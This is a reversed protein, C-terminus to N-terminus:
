RKEWIRLLRENVVQYLKATATLDAINYEIIDELRGEHYAAQVQSGDGFVAKPDAIGLTQCWFQLTFRRTAGFFSLVELLDCHPRISFRRTDLNRSPTIDRILSRQMLYPGDFGKGNFTIYSDYNSILQWFRTLIASEDGRFHSVLVEGHQADEPVQDDSGESLIMARSTDPNLLGIVVVKSLPAWLGLRNKTEEAKKDTEAYKLLYDQTAQSLTDWRAGVTEIDFIVKSAM